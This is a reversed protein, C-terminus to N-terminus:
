YNNSHTIDEKSIKHIIRWEASRSRPNELVEVREPKWCKKPKWRGVGALDQERFFDKVLRAELGHFSIVGLRGGPLLKKWSAALGAKLAGLEDNVTMRLAQFTKTAFHLRRHTYWFPVAKKIIAVLQSTTIIKGKEREALIAKAIQPAFSEEGYAKLIDVLHEGTWDNVIEQATLMGETPVASFTMQLPEDKQFSFGRGSEGLQNSSLGLDLLIGNVGPIDEAELLTDLNRFNGHLLTVRCPLQALNKKAEKLAEEDQDIGILHGTPGLREGIARAHGGRNVTGDIFIEGSKPDLTGLVTQLLVPIHM